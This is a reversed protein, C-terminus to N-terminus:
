CILGACILLLVLGFWFLVSLVPALINGSVAKGHLLLKDLLENLTVRFGYGM